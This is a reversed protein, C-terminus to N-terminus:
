WFWTSVSYQYTEPHLQTLYRSQRWECCCSWRTKWKYSRQFSMNGSSWINGIKGSRRKLQRNNWKHWHNRYMALEKGPSQAAQTTKWSTAHYAVNHLLAIERSSWYARKCPRALLSCYGKSSSGNSLMSTMFTHFDSPRSDFKMRLNWHRWPRSNSIAQSRAKQKQSPTIRPTHRYSIIYWRVILQWFEQKSARICRSLNISSRAALAIPVLLKM